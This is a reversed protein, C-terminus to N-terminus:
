KALSPIINFEKVILGASIVKKGFKTLYYKFTNKVKKILGFVHLRKIIRSMQASNFKNMLIKRLHKNRFGNINFEGSTLAILIQADNENFFNFEKYSRNNDTEKKSIKSLNKKGESNDDFSAIFDLYRANSYQCQKTLDHLSYISKKMSAFKKVTQGTQTLVDRFVKFETIDNVTTEVRLVKSAKDYMKISNAGMFHKIRTGQIQKNYKTGVEQAYNAALSRSFFTAVNQPKVSHISKLIIEDYLLKLDEQDKFIIDTSYETQTLTWRYSQSTQELFPIYTSVIKDLWQHLDEARLNNSLSQAKQYDSIKTFANDQMEFNINNKQLKYALYNHGNFYFQVRCPLWTPIRLFSLGLYKDIFYIYYHICKTTRIKLTTKQTKSDYHPEFADTIEMSTYIHVIGPHMGRTEIIKRINLEKDFRQPSRIHEISVDNQKAVTEIKNRIQENYKKAFKPFDFIRISNTLLYSQMAHSFGWRELTGSIIIRDICSITGEIINSYKKLFDTNM